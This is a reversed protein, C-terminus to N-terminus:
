KLEIVERVIQIYKIDNGRKVTLIVNTREDGRILAILENLRLSNVDTGNVQLIIDNQLLGARAAPTNEFVRSVVFEGNKEMLAAGIGQYKQGNDTINGKVITINNLPIEKGTIEIEIVKKIYGEKEIIIRGSQSSTVNISFRGMNDSIVVSSKENKGSFVVSAGEIPARTVFDLINGTIVSTSVMEKKELLIELNTVKGKEVLIGTRESRGAECHVSLSYDGPRINEFFFKGSLDTRRASTFPEGIDKLTLICGKQPQKDSDMVVGILTGKEEKKDQEGTDQRVAFPLKKINKVVTELRKIRDKDEDLIKVKKGINNDEKGNISSLDRPNNDKDRILIFFIVVPIIVAFFLIIRRNM